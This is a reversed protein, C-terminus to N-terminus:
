AKWQSLLQLEADSLLDLDCWLTGRGDHPLGDVLTQAFHAHPEQRAVALARPIAQGIFQQEVRTMRGNWKNSAM